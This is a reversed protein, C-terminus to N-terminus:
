GCLYGTYRLRGAVDSPFDYRAAVDFVEQRGYVLVMDYHRALAAMAGERRWVPGTVEPSDLIDRLGLVIRTDGVRDLAELTPLLEGMAGHPMHDVLLLDPRYRLAATRLLARRLAHVEGFGLPLSIPRWDGPALKRISPLKLQDHGHASGFFQGAPSDAAVLLAAGPMARALAGAIASTRRLHGLGLGDQSYLLVRVGQQRRGRGNMLGPHPHTGAHEPPHHLPLHLSRVRDRQVRRRAPDRRLRVGGLRRDGHAARRT